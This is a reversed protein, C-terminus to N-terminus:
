FASSVKVVTSALHNVLRPVKAKLDGFFSAVDQADQDMWGLVIEELPKKIANM